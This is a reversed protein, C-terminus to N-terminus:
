LLLIPTKKADVNNNKIDYSRKMKYKLLESYRYM